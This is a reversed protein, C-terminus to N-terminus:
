LFAFEFSSVNIMLNSRCRLEQDLNKFSLGIHWFHWLVSLNSLIRSPAATVQERYKSGRSDYSLVGTLGSCTRGAFLAKLM